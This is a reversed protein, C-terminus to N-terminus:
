ERIFIAQPIQAFIRYRGGSEVIAGDVCVTKGDYLEEPAADFNGLASAPIAIDVGGAEDGARGLALLVLPEAYSEEDIRTGVVRGEVPMREGAHEPAGDWSIPDECSGGPAASTPPPLTYRVLDDPGGIFTRLRGNEGPQIVGTVCVFEGTLTDIPSAVFREVAYDPIVVDIGNASTLQNGIELFVFADEGINQRSAGAVPGVFSTEVDVYKGAEEWPIPAVCRSLARDGPGVGGGQEPTGAPQTSLGDDADTLAFDDEADNGCAALFFSLAAVALLVSAITLSRRM